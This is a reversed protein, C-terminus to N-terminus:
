SRPRSTVPPFARSVVVREIFAGFQSPDTPPAGASPPNFSPVRIVAVDGVWREFYPDRDSDQRGMPDVCSIFADGRGAVIDRARGDSSEVTITSGERLTSVAAYALHLDRGTSSAFANGCLPRELLAEDLDSGARGDIAVITDGPALALPNDRGAHTV